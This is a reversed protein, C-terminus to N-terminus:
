RGIIIIRGEPELRPEFRRYTQQVKPRELMHSEVVFEAGQFRARAPILRQVLDIFSRDFFDLFDAFIRFNVRNALRSFYRTRFEDIRHYTDRYRSAPEGIVNNWNDLSSFMLSIDENLADVLNFELAVGRGENFVGDDPVRTADWTRIKEENWGYDPPAIFNYEFLEKPGDLDGLSNILVLSSPNGDDTGYSQFNLVHDDMETDSLVRSWVRVEQRLGSGSSLVLILPDQTSGSLSSSAYSTSASGKTLNTVSNEDLSSVRISIQQSTVNRNVVLNKWANDFFAGTVDLLAQDSTYRITGSGLVTPIYEVRHQVSPFTGSTGLTLLTGSGAYAPIKFRLEIAGPNVTVNGAILTGTAMLVPTSKESNIRYTQIGVDRQGGFEKVKVIKENLGYIRLLAEVSEKTGKTKYLYPLNNLTRRWFENKIQYLETDLRQNDYQAASGSLVDIGFLYQFAEKSLFNGKPSWGWFSLAEGLLADPTQDFEGYNMTYIKSFNDIKVKIEDFQRGLLFLLNKLLRTQNEDELYLFQEPVLNTILNPNERDYAQGIQQQSQVFTYVSAETLDLIPDPTDLPFLSSSARAVTTTNGIYGVFGNGSYDSIATGSAENFRWYGTLAEQVYVRTNYTRRMEELTRAKNWVRLEDMTGSLVASGLGSCGVYLRNTDANGPAPFLSSGSLFGGPLPGSNVQKPASEASGTFLSIRENERDFVCAIYRVSGIDAPSYPFGLTANWSSSVFTFAVSNGTTNIAWVGPRRLFYGSASPMTTWFEVTFSGTGPYLVPEVPVQGKFTDTIVVGNSSGAVGNFKLHGTSGPWKSQLHKEYGDSASQFSLVDEYKGFAPYENLMREAGINFYELASNFYVFNGFDSYDVKPEVRQLLDLKKEIATVTAESSTMEALSRAPHTALKRKNPDTDFLETLPM